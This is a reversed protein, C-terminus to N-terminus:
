GKILKISSQQNCQTGSTLKCALGEELRQFKKIYNSSEIKGRINKRKNELRAGFSNQKRKLCNNM